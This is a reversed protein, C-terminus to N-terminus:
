PVASATADPFLALASTLTASEHAYDLCAFLRQRAPRARLSSTLCFGENM